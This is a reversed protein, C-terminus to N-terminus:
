NVFLMMTIQMGSVIMQNTGIKALMILQPGFKLSRSQVRTKWSNNKGFADENVNILNAAIIKQGSKCAIKFVTNKDVVFLNAFKFIRKYKANKLDVHFVFETENHLRIQVFATNMQSTQWNAFRQVSLFVTEQAGSKGSNTSKRHLFKISLM